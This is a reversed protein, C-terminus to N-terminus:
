RSRFAEPLPFVGRFSVAISLRVAHSRRPQLEMALHMMQQVASRVLGISPERYSQM